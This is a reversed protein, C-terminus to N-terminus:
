FGGWFIINLLILQIKQLYLKNEPDTKYCLLTNDLIEPKFNDCSPWTNVTEM